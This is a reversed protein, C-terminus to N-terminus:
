ELLTELESIMGNIAEVQLTIKNIAETNGQVMYTINTFDNNEKQIRGAIDENVDVTKSIIDNQQMCIYDAQKIAEVSKKLLAMMHRIGKVTEGILQNQETQQQANDNMVESVSKTGNQVRTVVDNVSELSHKTSVALNGVEKAVVAFGKGAEGARAAEIAANLALLNISEAIENIIDLTKGIENSELLLKDAVKKTESTSQEVRKSVTLLENLAGENSESIEVLDKSIGDLNQMKGSMNKSSENLHTMNEQCQESKEKMTSNSELLSQSISALEQTSASETQSTEILSHSADALQRTVDTVKLIVKEMRLSNAELQEKKANLLFKNVFVVMVVIGTLGLTVCVGRIFADSWFLNDAPRVIPNGIFLILLSAVEAIWCIVCFKTDLFFAVLVLFYFAFMWSEKSPFLWTVLNLNIVVLAGLYLKAAREYESSIEKQSLIKKILIAGIADEVLVIGDFLVVTRWAVDAFLGIGKLTPYATGAATISLMIVGLILVIVKKIYEKMVESNM